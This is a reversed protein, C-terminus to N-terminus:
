MKVGARIIEEDLEGVRPGDEGLHVGYAGRDPITGANMRTVLASGRRASLTDTARDWSLLPKLEAFDSSPYNGSLMDLVSELAARSLQRYSWARRVLQELEDVSSPAQCCCAVLQQSLVDLPNEPVRISELAADQMRSAVVTSELLDGRFKPYIRGESTEGVGHGARGVRQLGRAVSGPSEVLLVLDVAGM